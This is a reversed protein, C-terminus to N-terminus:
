AEVYITEGFPARGEEISAWVVPYEPGTAPFRGMLDTLIICVEPVVNDNELANFIPCFDTGGGGKPHTVVDLEGAEITEGPYVAADFYYVHVKSPRAEALIANLHGTFNAQMARDYCSGSTDIFLAVEGLAESQHLPSFCGHSRLTRRNLRSWNYESSRLSQMYRHLHNYWAERSAKFVQVTGAEIGAPLKGM